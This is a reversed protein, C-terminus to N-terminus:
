SIHTGTLTFLDTFNILKRQEHYREIRNLKMPADATRNRNRM